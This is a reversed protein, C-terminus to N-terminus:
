SNVRKSNMQDRIQKILALGTPNLHQQNSRLEYLQKWCAYDLSKTTMMPYSDVFKIVAETQRIILVSAPRSAKVEDVNHIDYNPKITGIGM